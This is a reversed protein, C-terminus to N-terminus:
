VAFCGSYESRTKHQRHLGIDQRLGISKKIKRFRARAPADVRCRPPHGRSLELRCDRPYTHETTHRGGLEVSHSPINRYWRFARNSLADTCRM